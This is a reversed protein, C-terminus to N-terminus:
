NINIPTRSILIAVDRDHLRSVMLYNNYWDTLLLPTYFYVALNALHFFTACRRM